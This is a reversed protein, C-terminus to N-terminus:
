ARANELRKRTMASTVKRCVNLIYGLSELERKLPAIEEATAPRTGAIAGPYAAGHQGVHAYCECHGRRDAPLEPFLAYVDGGKRFTRFIAVTPAKTTAKMKHPM